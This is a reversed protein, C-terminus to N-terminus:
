KEVGPMGLLACSTQYVVATAQELHEHLSKEYSFPIQQWRKARLLRKKCLQLYRHMQALERLTKQQKLNVALLRESENM